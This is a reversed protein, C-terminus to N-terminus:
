GVPMSMAETCSLFTDERLRLPLGSVDELEPRTVSLPLADKGSAREGARELPM